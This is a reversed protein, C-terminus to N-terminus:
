DRKVGRASPFAVVKRPPENSTPGKVTFRPWLTRAAGTPREARAYVEHLMRMDAHGMRDAVDKIQYGLAFMCRAYSRRFIRPNLIPKGIAAATEGLVRAVTSWPGGGIPEEPLFFERGVFALYAKLDDVLPTPMPFQELPVGTKTGMRIYIGTHLGVLDATLRDADGTRAGTYFLWSLYIKRRAVYLAPDDGLEERRMVAKLHSTSSDAYIRDRVWRFVEEGIWDFKPAAKAPAEPLMPVYPLWSREDGVCFRLVQRIVSLRNRISRGSYCQGFDGRELALVYDRILKEGGTQCLAVLRTAGFEARVAKAYQRLWKKGGETKGRRTPEWADVAGAFTAPGAGGPASELRLQAGPPAATREQQLQFLRAWARHIAESEPLSADGLTYHWGFGWSRLDVVWKGDLLYPKPHRV